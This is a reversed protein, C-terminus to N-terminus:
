SKGRLYTGSRTSVANVVVPALSLSLVVLGLLKNKILVYARLAAFAIHVNDANTVSYHVVCVPYKGAAPVMQVLVVVNGAQQFTACSFVGSVLLCGLGCVGM